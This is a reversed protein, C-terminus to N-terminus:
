AAWGGFRGRYFLLPGDLESESLDTVRGLVIEHDGADHVAEIRCEVYALQGDLMPTGTRSPHWRVGHFKDEGSTAFTDCLHRQGESLINAGFRGTGVIRPWSRSTKQPCFLVLPPDLSVSALSQVLLGTPGADDVGTIVAVGTCFRSMAKRLRGPDVSPELHQDATM